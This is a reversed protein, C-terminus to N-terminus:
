PGTPGFVAHIEADNWSDLVLDPAGDGDLDGPAAVHYGAYAWEHDGHFGPGLALDVEGALPGYSVTAVGVGVNPGDAVGTQGVLLDMAGDRDLDDAAFNLGVGDGVLHTTGIEAALHDGAPIPGPVVWAQLRGVVYGGHVLLDVRGDANLDEALVPFVLSSNPDVGDGRYSADADDLRRDGPFPGRFWWVGNISAADNGGHVLDVAGDGDFDALLGLYPALWADDSFTAVADAKTRTGRCTAGSFLYAYTGAGPSGELVGAVVDPVGDGTLDQGGALSLGLSELPTDGEIVCAAEDLHHEGSFPGLLLSIRGSQVGAPAYGQAVWLDDVGDGDV